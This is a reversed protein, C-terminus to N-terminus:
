LPFPDSRQDPRRAPLHEAVDHLDRRVHPAITSTRAAASEENKLFEDVSSLQTTQLIGRLDPVRVSIWRQLDPM